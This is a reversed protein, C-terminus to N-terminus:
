EMGTEAIDGSISRVTNKKDNRGGSVLKLLFTDSQRPRNVDTTKALPAQGSDTKV